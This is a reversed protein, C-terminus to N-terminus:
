RGFKIESSKKKAWELQTTLEGIKKYLEDILENKCILQEKFDKVTKSPEFILEMNDIFQNKWNKINSPLINFETALQNLTKEEKLCELVVKAKLTSDFNRRQRKSM